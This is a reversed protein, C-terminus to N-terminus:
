APDVLADTGLLQSILRHGDHVADGIRGIQRADGIPYVKLGAAELEAIQALPRDRGQAIIASAVPIERMEGSEAPARRELRACGRDLAVLTTHDHLTIRPNERLRQRLLKRYLPEAARALDRRDSRTVLHVERGAAAMLEATECGTEGGGYVVVPGEPLAPDPRALLDYASLLAVGEGPAIVPAAAIAGTALIVAEPQLAALAGPTPDTGLHVTIGPQSLQRVLYARYWDLKDKFPPAASAILGGGLHAAREFVDVTFGAKAAHIAAAM